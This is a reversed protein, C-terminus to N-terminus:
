SAISAISHCAAEVEQVSISDMGAAAVVRVRGRPAWVVPDSAGFLAVVPAGAAAALHSIGSDNGVYLRAGALWGTLEHLNEFRVADALSETPGACWRVATHRELRRALERFRDLPWNKRPSGSFPHIVAFEGTAPPFVLKPVAAGRGGVQALYFDAAHIAAGDPPLAPLFRFPLGQVAMRFEPRNSGYWSIIEDFSALARLIPQPADIGPLGIWDLGTSQISTSHDAIGALVTNQRACWLELYGADSRLYEIAPLSLIFDGIAGPRIVLRRIM